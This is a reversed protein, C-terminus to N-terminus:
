ELKSRAASVSGYTEIDEILQSISTPTFSNNLIYSIRLVDEPRLGSQVLKSFKQIGDFNIGWKTKEEREKRKYNELITEYKQMKTELTNAESELNEVKQYKSIIDKANWGLKKLEKIARALDGFEWIELEYLKLIKCVNDITNFAKKTLRSKDMQAKLEAESKELSQKNVEIKDNIHQLEGQKQKIEDELKDPEVQNKVMFDFCSILLNAAITPSMGHINFLNDMADLFREIKKDDLGSMKIANKWRLNAAIQKLATPNKSLVVAVQRQLDLTSDSSLAESIIGNVSGVSIKVDKAIKEQPLGLLFLRVVERKIWEKNNVDM